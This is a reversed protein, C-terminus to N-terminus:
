LNKVLSFQSTASTGSFNKTPSVRFKYDGFLERYVVLLESDEASEALMLVEYIAGDKDRYIGRHIEFREDIEQEERPSQSESEGIGFQEKLKLAADRVSCQEMAAVFDLV